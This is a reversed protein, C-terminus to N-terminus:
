VSILCWVVCVHFVFQTTSHQSHVGEPLFVTQFNHQSVCNLRESQSRSCLPAPRALSSACTPSNCNRQSRFMGSVTPRNTRVREKKHLRTVDENARSARTHGQDITHPWIPRHAGLELSCVDVHLCFYRLAGFVCRRHSAASSCSEEKSVMDQFRGSHASVSYFFVRYGSPMQVRKTAFWVCFPSCALYPM